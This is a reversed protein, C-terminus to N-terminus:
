LKTGSGQDQGHYQLRKIRKSLPTNKSIHLIVVPEIQLISEFLQSAEEPLNNYIKRHLIFIM